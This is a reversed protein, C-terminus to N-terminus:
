LTRKKMLIEIQKPSLDCVEDLFFIDPDVIKVPPKFLSFTIRSKSPIFNRLVETKKSPPTYTGLILTKHSM